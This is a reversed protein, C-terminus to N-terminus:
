ANKNICELARTVNYVVKKINPHGVYITGDSFVLCSVCNEWELKYTDNHRICYQPLVDINNIIAEIIVLTM